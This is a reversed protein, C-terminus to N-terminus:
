LTSLNKKAPQQQRTPSAEGSADTLDCTSANQLSQSFIKGLGPAPPTAVEQQPRLENTLDLALNEKM